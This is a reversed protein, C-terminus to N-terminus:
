CGSRSDFSTEHKENRCIGEIITRFALILDRVVALEEYRKRVRQDAKSWAEDRHSLADSKNMRKSFQDAGDVRICDILGSHHSAICLALM